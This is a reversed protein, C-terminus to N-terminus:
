NKSQHDNLGNGDIHDIMNFYFLKDMDYKGFYKYVLTHLGYSVNKWSVQYYYLNDGVQKPKPTRIEHITKVGRQVKYRIRGFNSLQFWDSEEINKWEEM